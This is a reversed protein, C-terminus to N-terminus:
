GETRAAELARRLERVIDVPTRLAGAEAEIIVSSVARRLSAYADLQGRAADIADRVNGAPLNLGLDFLQGSTAYPEPIAPIETNIESVAM